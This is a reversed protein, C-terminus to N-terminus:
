SRSFLWAISTPKPTCILTTVYLFFTMLLPVSLLSGVIFVSADLLGVLDVEEFAGIM